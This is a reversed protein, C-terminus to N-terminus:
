ESDIWGLSRLFAIADDRTAIFMPGPEGPQDAGRGYNFFGHPQNEYVILESRVGLDIMQDRFAEGTSVPILHDSDGLMTLTPPMDANLNHMPSISQWNEGLRAHGYGADPGNDYVPNFLVLADPRPPHDGTLDPDTVTALCAALHGGASGGGAGLRDTDVNFEDAHEHVWRFADFADAVADYPTTGHTNKLRYQVNFVAVGLDALANSLPRFQGPAGNNWGGGHFMVLAPRQGPFDDADPRSVYVHLDHGDISKYRHEDWGAAHADPTTNMLSFLCFILCTPFAINRFM